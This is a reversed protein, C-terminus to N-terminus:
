GRSTSTVAPQQQTVCHIGGGRDWLPTVPIGIAKRGPWFDEIAARAARDFEPYGFTGFLVVGNAVYWNLYNLREREGRENRAVPVELRQVDFGAGALVNAADEFARYAKTRREVTQGVVARDPSIFRAIADVHGRTRDEARSPRETLWLVTHLGFADKLTRTMQGRTMAPGGDGSNRHALCCYSALATGRGNFEIAGGELVMEFVQRRLGLAVAVEAPVRNDNSFCKTQDGWGTFTWDTVVLGTSDLAFIPGNDRCWASDTPIVYYHIDNEPVGAKALARAASLRVKDDSV